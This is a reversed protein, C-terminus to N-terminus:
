FSLFKKDSYPDNTKNPPPIAKKIAPAAVVANKAAFYVTDGVRVKARVKFGVEDGKKVKLVSQHEIQMSDIKQVFDTTHGKIHIIDGVKLPVKTKLAAVFINGFYHDVIGLVKEKPAKVKKVKRAKVSRKVKKKVM